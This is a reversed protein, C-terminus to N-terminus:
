LGFTKRFLYARAQSMRVLEGDVMQFELHRREPIVRVVHLLNILTSRNAQVFIKPCLTDVLRHMKHRTISRKEGRLIFSAYNGEQEIRVIDGVRVMGINEVHILDHEGKKEETM